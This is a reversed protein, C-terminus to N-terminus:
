ARSEKWFLTSVQSCTRFAAPGFAQLASGAPDLAWFAGAGPSRRFIGTVRVAIPHGTAAVQLALTRTYSIVAAKAADPNSQPSAPTSQPARKPVTSEVLAVPRSNATM